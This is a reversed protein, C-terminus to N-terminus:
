HKYHGAQAQIEDSQYVLETGCHHCKVQFTGAPLALVGDEDLMEPSVRELLLPRQCQRCTAVLWEEGAPINVSGDDDGTM